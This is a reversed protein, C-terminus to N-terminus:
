GHGIGVSQIEVVPYDIATVTTLADLTGSGVSTVYSISWVVSFLLRYPRHVPSPEVFVHGCPGADVSAEDRGTWSETMATTVDDCHIVAGDGTHVWLSSPTATVTGHHAGVQASVSVEDLPEVAFWTGVGVTGRAHPSIAPVPAPLRRSMEDVAGAIVEAPTPDAVDVWSYAVFAGYCYVEVAIQTRGTDPHVRVVVGSDTGAVVRWVCTPASGDASDDDASEPPTEIGVSITDDDAGVDIDADSVVPSGVVARASAAPPRGTDCVAAVVMTPSLACLVAVVGVLWMMPRTMLRTMPMTMPSGSDSSGAHDSM